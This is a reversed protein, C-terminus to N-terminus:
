PSSRPRLIKYTHAPGLQTPRVIVVAEPKFDARLLGRVQPTALSKRTLTVDIAINGVRADPIRYTRDTGTTEYERGIVRFLGEKSAQVRNQLFFDRLNQRVERDVFNGIAEERPLRVTLKGANYLAKGKEYARDTQEQLHRLTEVQMPRLEGKMRYFATARDVRLQRIQNVQGQVTQPFGLSEFRYNPDIRRIQAILQNTHAITIDLTLRVAPGTLDLINDAIAVLPGGPSGATRPFVHELTMPDNLPPGNNGGIRVRPNRSFAAPVLIADPKGARSVPSSVRTRPPLSGRGPAFTFRGDRPDHYPNFKRENARAFIELPM